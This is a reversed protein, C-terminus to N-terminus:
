DVSGLRGAGIVGSQHTRSCGPGSENKSDKTGGGMRLPVWPGGWALFHAQEAHHFFMCLDVAMNRRSRYADAATAKPPRCKQLLEHDAGNQARDWTCYTQSTSALSLLVHSAHGFQWVPWVRGVFLNSVM